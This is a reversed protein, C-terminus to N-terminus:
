RYRRYRDPLAGIVRKPLNLFVALAWLVCSIGFVIFFMGVKAGTSVPISDKLFVYGSGNDGKDKCGMCARLFPHDKFMVIDLIGSGHRYRVKMDGDKKAYPQATIAGFVVDPNFSVGKLRFQMGTLMENNGEPMGTRARSWEITRNDNSIGLVLVIGNKPLGWKGFRNQWYATLANLYDDPSNIKSARIAVVHLDGQREMGLAANFQMLHAQWANNNAQVGVFQIKQAQTDMDFLMDSEGLKVTNPPLLGAKEFDEIQSSYQKALSSDSPLIYNTYDNVKTVPEANGSDIRDSATRWRDPVGWPVDTPIPQGARWAQPQAAFIDEEVTWQRGLSDSLWYTFERTVYPCRHWRDEEEEYFETRYHANGKDDIYDLVQRSKTVWVTYHDCRYEHVCSGDRSCGTEEVWAKTMSGNWFEKYGEAAQARAASPGWFVTVLVAVLVIVVGYGVYEGASVRMPENYSNTLDFYRCLWWVAGGVALPILISMLVLM